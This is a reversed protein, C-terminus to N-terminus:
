WAGLKICYYVDHVLYFFVFPALCLLWLVQKKRSGAFYLWIFLAVWSVPMYSNTLPTFFYASGDLFKLLQPWRSLVPIIMLLVAIVRGSTNTAVKKSVKELLIPLYFYWMTGVTLHFISPITVAWLWGVYEPLLVSTSGLCIPLIVCHLLSSVPFDVYDLLIWFMHWPEGPDPNRIMDAINLAIFLFHLAAIVLGAKFGWSKAKFWIILKVNIKKELSNRIRM